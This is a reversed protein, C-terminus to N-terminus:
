NHGEHYLLFCDTGDDKGTHCLHVDCESCYWTTEKRRKQVSCYHCRSVGKQSDPKKIRPYHKLKVCPQQNQTIRGLQKRSNYTGMLYKALQLRFDRLTINPRVLQRLLIFANALVIEFLFWFIYKYYKRGKTRVHYYQRLQDNRDVGGMNESYATIAVPCNVELRTGDKQTRKTMDMVDPQVNTSLVAVVKNDLWSTAVLPGQQRAIADGRNVLGLKAGAKKGKGCVKLDSPFGKSNQRVTGCAYTGRELLEKFLSPSTFFNDCYMHHNKHKLHDSLMLVVRSGLTGESSNSGKGTYVDFNQVYGNTSDALCWVKIGRKVPKNPLYQKLSSQGQFPIMAEDVVIDRSPQYNDMISAKIANLM